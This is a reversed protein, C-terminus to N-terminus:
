GFLDAMLVDRIEKKDYLLGILAAAGNLTGCITGSGCVGGHGYKMMQVPFSAFPEGLKDALQYIISCFVGYMCSGKPYNEYAINATVDSDLPTYTWKSDSDKFEM